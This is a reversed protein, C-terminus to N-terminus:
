DGYVIKHKIIETDNVQRILKRALRLKEQNTMKNYDIPIKM